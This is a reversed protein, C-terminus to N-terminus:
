PAQLGSMHEALLAQRIAPDRRWEAVRPCDIDATAYRRYSALSAAIFAELSLTRAAQKTRTPQTLFHDNAPVGYHAAIAPYVPWTGQAIFEDPLYTEIDIEPPQLGIKRLVGRALDAVVHPKPHNVSHMFAGRRTWRMLDDSLDWGAARGADLLMACSGDWLDFYGLRAFIAEEFLKQIRAADLGELYGFLVLASHYDGTASPLLGGRRDARDHVHVLDPHFAPFVLIPLEIGASVTKLEDFGTGDRFRGPFRTLVVADAERLEAALASANAHRVSPRWYPRFTIAAEPLLLRM